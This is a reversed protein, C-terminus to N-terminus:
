GWIELAPLYGPWPANTAYGGPRLLPRMPLDLDWGTLEEVSVGLHESSGASVIAEAAQRFHGRRALETAVSRLRKLFRRILDQELVAEFGEVGTLQLYASSAVADAVQMAEGDTRCGARGGNEGLEILVPIPRAPRLSDLTSNLISVGRLSDVLIFAEFQPNKSMETALWGIAKPEVVQNAILIREVGHSRLPQAQTITAVSSGWAGAASQMKIIGPAMTTKAHPALSVGRERCYQAMRLINHEIANQKVILRPLLVDGALINQGRPLSWDGPVSEKM